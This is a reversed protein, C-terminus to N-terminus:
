KGGTSKNQIDNKISFSNNCYGCAYLKGTTGISKVKGKKGCVKCTKINM